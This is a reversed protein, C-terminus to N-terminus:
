QSEALNCFWVRIVFDNLAPVFIIILIRIYLKKLEFSYYKVKYM